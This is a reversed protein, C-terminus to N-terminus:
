REWCRIHYNELIRMQGLHRAFVDVRDRDNIIEKCVACIIKGM